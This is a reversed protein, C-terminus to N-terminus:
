NDLSIIPANLLWNDIIDLIDDVDRKGYRKVPIKLATAKIQNIDEEIENKLANKKKEKKNVRKMKFRHSKITDYMLTAVGLIKKRLELTYEVDEEFLHYFRKSRMMDIFMNKNKEAYPEVCINSLDENVTHVEESFIARSNYYLIASLLKLNREMIEKNSAKTVLPSKMLRKLIVDYVVCRLVIMSTFIMNGEMEIVNKLRM